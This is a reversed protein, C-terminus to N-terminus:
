SRPHEADYADGCVKWLYAQMTKKGTPSDKQALFAAQDSTVHELSNARTNVATRVAAFRERAAIERASPEGTREYRDADFTYIRQCNPNQTPATRHTMVMYNGHNHGIVKKPRKMAGQIYEIGAAGVKAKAM